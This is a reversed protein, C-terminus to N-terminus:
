KQKHFKGIIKHPKKKKCQSGKKNILLHGPDFEPNVETIFTRAENIWAKRSLRKRM